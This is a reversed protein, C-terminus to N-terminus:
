TTYVMMVLGIVNYESLSLLRLCNKVNGNVLFELGLDTILFCGDLTLTELRNAEGITKLSVDTVNVCGKM